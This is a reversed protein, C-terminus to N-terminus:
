TFLRKLFSEHRYSSSKGFHVVAIDLSPMLYLAQGASGSAYVLGADPKLWWGLGYRANPNSGEFCPAFASRNAIVFRGYALWNEVTLFAGTPLPHTGDDLM